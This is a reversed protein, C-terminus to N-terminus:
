GHGVEKHLNCLGAFRLTVRERKVDHIAQLGHKAVVNQFVLKDGPRFKSPEDAFPSFLNDEAHGLLVPIFVADKDMFVVVRLFGQVVKDCNRERQGTAIDIAGM